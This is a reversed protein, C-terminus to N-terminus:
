NIKFKNIEIELKRVIEKLEDAQNGVEVIAETQEELSSTVEEACAATEESVAAINNISAVTENNANDMEKVYNDVDNIITKINETNNNIKEFAENVDKVAVYQKSSSEKIENMMDVSIMIEKKIEFIINAIEKTSMESSEALKQIETAVVSFGKGAEGARAAEISANLALLQTQECIGKLSELINEILKSKENLRSVSFETKKIVEINGKTKEKLENVSNIGNNTIDYSNNAEKIMLESKENLKKFRETMNIGLQSSHEADEAQNSAGVAIENVALNIENAVRSTQSTKENLIESSNGIGVTLEKSINLLHSINVMMKNFSESLIGIENKANTNSRVTFDGTSAVSLLESIKILPLAIRQSAIRVVILALILIVFSIIAITKILTSVLDNAKEENQLTIVGWSDSNGNLVVPSYSVYYKEGDIDKIKSSGTQNNLVNSIIEKYEESAEIEEEKVLAIGKDDLVPNGNDDLVKVTKTFDKYNYQESMIKEDPHAIVNGEGDIVFSYRGEDANSNEEILRQLYDLKINSGIVGIPENNNYLPIFISTVLNNSTSSYFSHFVFPNMENKMKIFWDRTSRDLLNGESKGTQMGNMDQVYLLEFFDNREQAEALVERQSQEEMSLVRPDDSLDETVKYATNVFSTLNKSILKTITENNKNIESNYKRYLVISTSSIIGLILVTIICTMICILQTKISKKKIKKNYISKSNM